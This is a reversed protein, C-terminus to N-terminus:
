PPFLGDGGRRDGGFREGEGGGGELDVGGKNSATPALLGLVPETTKWGVGPAVEHVTDNVLIPSELGEADVM